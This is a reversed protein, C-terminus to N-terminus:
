FGLQLVATSPIKSRSASTRPIYLQAFQLKLFYALFISVQSFPVITQNCPYIILDNKVLVRQRCGSDSTRIEFVAIRVKHFYLELDYHLFDWM